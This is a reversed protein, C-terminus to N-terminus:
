SAGYIAITTTSSPRKDSSFCKLILGSSAFLLAVGFESQHCYPWFLWAYRWWQVRPDNWKVARDSWIDWNTYAVKNNSAQPMLYKATENCPFAINQVRHFSYAAVRDRCIRRSLRKSWHVLPPKWVSMSKDRKRTRSDAIWAMAQCARSCCVSSGLQMVQTPSEQLRRCPEANYGQKHIRSTCPCSGEAHCNNSCIWFAIGLLHWEIIYVSQGEKRGALMALAGMRSEWDTASHGWSSQRCRGRKGWIFGHKPNRSQTKLRKITGSM